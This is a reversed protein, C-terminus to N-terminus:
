EVTKFAALNKINFPIEEIVSEAIQKEQHHRM